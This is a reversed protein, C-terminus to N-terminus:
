YFFSGLPIGLQRHIDEITNMRVYYNIGVNPIREEMTQITEYAAQWEEASALYEIMTGYVDGIQLASEVEPEKLLAHAHAMM